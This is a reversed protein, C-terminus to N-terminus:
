FVNTIIGSDVQINQQGPPNGIIVITGTWGNVGNVAFAQGDITGSVQLRNGNDSTTGILFNGTSDVFRARETNGTGLVFDTSSYTGVLFKGSGGLNAMLSASRVLSIGMQSGSVGSGFVRYVVNDTQDNQAVWAASANTGTATIRGFINANSSDVIHLKDTPAAIGIGVRNNTADVVLTDTDVTFNSQVRATGNVDLRYGADTFTGGNQLLLNGTSDFWQAWQNANNSSIRVGGATNSRINGTYMTGIVSQASYISNFRLSSSGIVRTNDANPLIDGWVRIAANTVGTYAGNTFTPNIDLGVLVDNNAAAVLTQNLYTGRAIASAATVSGTITTRSNITTVYNALSLKNVWMGLREGFEYRVLENNLSENYVFKSVGQFTSTGAEPAFLWSSSTLVSSTGNWGYGQVMFAPSFQQVSATAQAGNSLTFGGSHNQGVADKLYGVPYLFLSNQGTSDSRLGFFPLWSGSNLRKYWIMRTSDWTQPESQIAVDHTKLAGSVWASGSFIISPSNQQTVGSTAATTNALTLGGSAVTTTLSNVQLRESGVVDLKFGADTTTGVLLNGTTSAFRAVETGSRLFTINPGNIVASAGNARFYNTSGYNLESYTANDIILQAAANTIRTSGVVDLRYTAHATTGIGINRSGNWYFPFSDESGGGQDGPRATLLKINSLNFFNGGGTRIVSIRVQMDAGYDSVYAFYNTQNITTTSTHRTIWATGNWSEVLVNVTAQPSNWAIGLVLWQGQSYYLAASNFTWRAGFVTTNDIIPISQSQKQSFLESNFTGASWTTGNYTEYTGGLRNFALLDHWIWAAPAQILKSTDNTFTTNASISTINYGTIGSSIGGSALISGTFRSTGTVDLKYGSDTTNGISTNGTAFVTLAPNFTGSSGNVVLQVVGGAKVYTQGGWGADVPGFQFDNVATILMARRSTGGSDKWRIPRNNDLLFDGSSVYSDGTFRTTGNVDLRYGSDTTTAILVNGGSPNITLATTGAALATYSQIFPRVGSNVTGIGVGGPSALGGGIFAAVTNSPAIVTLSVIPSTTGIGVRGNVTDTYILNTAVTLGGVTIANTTTNGATTVAALTPTPVATAVTVNKWVQQTSDYQLLDNNAVSTIKVNHLEDIEYGNDVKVFIKGNVGHAYVVYGMVVTHNPAVPKVKTLAGPTTPSLFLVDGDVWTEGQLSGTTNIGNVNGFITIFGEQNNAINETVIGLTTVSDPDNNGQALVVALRQGQAGGESAIRVRVVKYQSELLDAGTKNVVRALTEQGVQLTVNGGKLRLDATGDQDNWAFMGPQLTPTAATDLQVYDTTIGGVNLTNTSVNGVALVEDLTPTLGDAIILKLNEVIKRLRIAKDREAQDRTKKYKLDAERASKLLESAIVDLAAM